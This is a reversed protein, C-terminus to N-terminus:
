CKGDKNEKIAPNEDEASSMLKEIAIWVDLVIYGDDSVITQFL